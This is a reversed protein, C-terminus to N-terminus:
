ALARPGLAGGLGAILAVPGLNLILVLVSADLDHFLSLATAAIAAVALSGTALAAAPRLPGTRRLMLLMAFGLPLSVLALTAFCRATEGLGVGEPGLSVWDTLCGYGIVSIWVGFAPAPLLPWWRSRDPLAVMFAAFAASIGTLLSAAVRVVFGTEGARAGLDPRAGVLIGLLVLVIAALALWLAARTLPPRLRRVPPADAVLAHILEATGTM